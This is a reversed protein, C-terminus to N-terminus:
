ARAPRIRDKWAVGREDVEEAKLIKWGAGEFDAKLDDAFQKIIQKPVLAMVDFHVQEINWEARQVEIVCKHDGAKIRLGSTPQFPLYGSILFDYWKGPEARDPAQILVLLKYM